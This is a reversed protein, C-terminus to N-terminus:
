LPPLALLQRSELLHAGLNRTLSRATGFLQDLVFVRRVYHHFDHETTFGIGALVQQCHRAAVRTGRGALAKAMAATEASQDRWAAELMSQATEIAVLTDALRHRVAQFDSIPQGFQVRALAHARALDLMKRAAGVMEHALAMQALAVATSWAGSLPWGAGVSLETGEVEVLGLRRDLGEPQRCTLDATAVDFSRDRGEVPAVVVMAPRAMLSVQSLGRVRLTGDNLRGPPVTQGLAPLVVAAGRDDGSGLASALVESLAASSANGSGQLEFLVSVASEVDTTLADRWGLDDLAQDLAAGSHTDLAHRLSAEFLQRDAADM